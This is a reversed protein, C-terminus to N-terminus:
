FESYIRSLNESVTEWSFLREARKRGDIAMRSRKKENGLIKMITKATNEVNGPKIFVGDDGLVEPIGGVHTAIVPTGCSMSEVLTMGFAEYLAPHVLVTANQYREILESEPLAGTFTVGDIFNKKLEAVYSSKENMRGVLSLEAEPLEKKVIKFAKLLYLVGKREVLNGVFLIKMPSKAKGPTYSKVDVGNYLVRLKKKEVGIKMYYKMLNKSVTVTIDSMDIGKNFEPFLPFGKTLEQIKNHLHLLVPKKPRTRYIYEPRQHFHFIDTEHAKLEKKLFHTYSWSTLHRKNLFSRVPALGTNKKIYNTEFLAMKRFISCIRSLYLFETNKLSIQREAPLSIIKFRYKDNLRSVVEIIWKEVAGWGTPPISVVENGVQTVTKM